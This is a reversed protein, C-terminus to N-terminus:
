ARRHYLNRRPRAMPDMHSPPIFEPLGDAPNIRVRWEGRHIIRHHAGCLLVGNDLCTKGGQAWHRIHHVMSWSSPRDCAPFACGRDRVLVARRVSGTFLRRERGVDLVQGAGGLAVPVVGSDCAMRRAETPSVPSGDDLTAAGIGDRLVDIDMTLVIQAPEGGNAPLDGRSMAMRCVDTLADARRQGPSRADDPCPTCLADLATRVVAADLTDLWGSLRVRGGGMDSLRFDREEHARREVRALRDAERREAEDPATVEFLRRGLIDLQRPGFTAAQELLFREGEARHEVPLDPVARAVVEAQEINVSGAALAAATQPLGADVSAALRVLRQATGPHIRAAESLWAKTSTAGHGAAIERGDLERVLALGVADLQSCLRFYDNVCDVLADDSLTWVLTSQCKGVASGLQALADRM